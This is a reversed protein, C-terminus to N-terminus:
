AQGTFESMTANGPESIGERRFVSRVTRLLIRLDLGLSVGDVYRVDLELRDEWSIANRGSIQALGTLGPRVEHRRAQRRSYRDMYRPLLPRPGVLSMEGKLVNWLQPLEDLSTRRLLAGFPTLRDEDTGPGDSMTRFKCLVFPKGHRGPRVQRFLVPAGMKIRLICAVVAMVPAFVLLLVISASLDICRKSIRTRTKM